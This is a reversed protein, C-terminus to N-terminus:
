RCAVVERIFAGPDGHTMLASGVLVADCRGLLPRVGEPKLYGSEAVAVRDEPVGDLLETATSTNIALTDLDRNNVGIVPVGRAVGDAVEAGDHTEFFPAVAYRECADLIESLAVDDLMRRIVLVARAGLLAGARVQEPDIIFDKMLVPAHIASVVAELDDLSGGFRTPETLVSVAAAGADVYVRAQAAADADPALAGRSPSARKVEAIVSLSARGRLAAPFAEGDGVGPEGGPLDALRRRASARMEDLVGSM